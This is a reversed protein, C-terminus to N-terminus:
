HNHVEQNNLGTPNKYSCINVNLGRCRHNQRWFVTIVIVGIGVYQRRIKEKPALSRYEALHSTRKGVVEVLGMMVGDNLEVIKPVKYRQGEPSERPIYEELIMPVGLGAIRSIIKNPFQIVEVDTTNVTPIEDLTSSLEGSETKTTDFKWSLWPELADQRDLCLMGEPIVFSVQVPFSEPNEVSIEVRSVVEVSVQDEIVVQYVTHELTERIISPPLFHSHTIKEYLNIMSMIMQYNSIPEQLVIMEKGSWSLNTEIAYALQILLFDVTTEPVVKFQFMVPTKLCEPVVEVVFRTAEFIRLVEKKDSFLKVRLRKHVTSRYFIYHCMPYVMLIPRMVTYSSKFFLGVDSIEMNLGFLSTPEARILPSVVGRPEIPKQQKRKRYQWKNEKTLRTQIQKYPAVFSLVDKVELTKDLQKFDKLDADVDRYKTTLRDLLYSVITHENTKDLMQM